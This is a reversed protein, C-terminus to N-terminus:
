NWPTVPGAVARMLRMFASEFETRAIAAQYSGASNKPLRDRIKGQLAAIGAEAQVVDDILDIESPM